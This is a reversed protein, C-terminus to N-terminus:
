ETKTHYFCHICNILPKPNTKYMIFKPWCVRGGTSARVACKNNMIRELQSLVSILLIIVLVPKLNYSIGFLMWKITSM